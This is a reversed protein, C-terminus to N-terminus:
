TPRDALEIISIGRRIELLLELTHCAIEIDPTPTSNQQRYGTLDRLADSYRKEKLAIMGGAYAKAAPSMRITEKPSSIVSKTEPIM